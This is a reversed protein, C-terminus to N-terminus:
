SGLALFVLIVTGASTAIMSSPNVITVYLSSTQPSDANAAIRNQWNWTYPLTDFVIDTILGPVVEYPVPGDTLRAIDGGQTIADGYLRAEIPITSTVQQLQFTKAALVSTMFTQGPSLNPVNITVSTSVLKTQTTSGSGGGQQIVTTKNTIKGGGSTTAVPLPIVRRAPIKGNEDFQRLTDSSANFPPLPCRIFPNAGRVAGPEKPTPATTPSEEM